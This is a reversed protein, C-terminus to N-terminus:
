VKGVLLIGSDDTELTAFPLFSQLIGILELKKSIRHHAKGVGLVCCAGASVPAQRPASRLLDPFASLGDIRGNRQSRAAKDRAALSIAARIFGQM